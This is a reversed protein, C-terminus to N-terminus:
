ECVSCSHFFTWNTMPFHTNRKHFYIRINKHWEVPHALNFLTTDSLKAWGTHEGPSQTNLSTRNNLRRRRDDSIEQQQHRQTVSNDWLRVALVRWKNVVLSGTWTQCVWQQHQENSMAPVSSSFFIFSYNSFRQQFLLEIVTCTRWSIMGRCQQLM